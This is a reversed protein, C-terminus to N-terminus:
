GLPPVVWEGDAGVTWLFLMHRKGDADIVEEQRQPERGNIAYSHSVVRTGAGASALIRPSLTQMSCGTLYLMVVTADALEWECADGVYFTALGSVGAAAANARAREIWYPEVDVGVARAGREKAAAVCIRGDGCGLDYVVDVSCVGALGLMRAVVEPPTAVYPALILPM